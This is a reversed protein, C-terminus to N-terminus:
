EHLRNISALFKKFWEYSYLIDAYEKVIEKNMEVQIETSNQLSEIIAVAKALYAYCLEALEPEDKLREAFTKEDAVYILQGLNVQPDVLKLGRNPPMIYCLNM